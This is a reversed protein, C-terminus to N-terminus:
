AGSAMYAPQRPLLSIQGSRDEFYGRQTRELWPGPIGCAQSRFSPVPGDRDLWAPVLLAAAVLVGVLLLAIIIRERSLNRM